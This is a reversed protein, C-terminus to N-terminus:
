RWQRTHNLREKDRFAKELRVGLRNAISCLMILVDALESDVEGIQSKADVGLGTVHRVAKFLEGIEEGLLLSQEIVTKNTFGREEELKRVYGQLDDLDPKEGLVPM